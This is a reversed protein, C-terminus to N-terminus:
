IYHQNVIIKDRVLKELDSLFSDFENQKKKLLNKNKNEDFKCVSCELNFFFLKKKCSFSWFFLCVFLFTIIFIVHMYVYECQKILLVM